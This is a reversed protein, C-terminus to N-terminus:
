HDGSIEDAEKWINHKKKKQKNNENTQSSLVIKFDEPKM